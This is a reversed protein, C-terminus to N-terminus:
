SAVSQVPKRRAVVLTVDDQFRAGGSFLSLRAMVSNILGQPSGNQCHLLLEKFPEDGFMELTVDRAEPIGDTYLVLEAGPPFDTEGTEYEADAYLNLPLGGATWLEEIWSRDEPMLYIPNHGGSSYRLRHSQHDLVSYFITVFQGITVNKSLERNLVALARAPDLEKELLTHILARTMAMIVAAPAGHGSVDAVIMALHRDDIPFLDFYDGGAKESPEYHCAFDYGEIVPPEKPLLREQIEAITHIDNLFREQARELEANARRLERSVEVSRLGSRIRAMLERREFPKFILDDAGFELARVLRSTQHSETLIIFYTNALFQDDKVMRCLAEGDMVPMDWDSIVMEPKESGILEYAQDGDTACIVSFLGTEELIERTQSLHAEDDDALLIKYAEM